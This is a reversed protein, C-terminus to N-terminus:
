GSLIAYEDIFTFIDICDFYELYVLINVKIFSGLGVM